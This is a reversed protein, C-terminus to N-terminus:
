AVKTWNNYRNQLRNIERTMEKINREIESVISSLKRSYPDYAWGKLFKTLDFDEPQIFPELDKQYYRSYNPLAKPPNTKMKTLREEQSELGRKYSELVPPIADRSVEYPLNRAGYCSSTQEGWGPRQYGHHAILGTNAKIERECIQCHRNM